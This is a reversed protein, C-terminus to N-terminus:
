QVRKGKIRLRVWGARFEFGKVVGIRSADYDAEINFEFVKAARGGLSDKGSFRM